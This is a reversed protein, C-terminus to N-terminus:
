LRRGLLGSRLIDDLARTVLYEAAKNALIGHVDAFKVLIAIQEPSLKIEVTKTM